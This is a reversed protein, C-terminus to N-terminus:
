RKRARKGKAADKRKGLTPLAVGIVDDVTTALTFAIEDRLDKPVADLDRANDKPIVITRIGARHAAMVKEKIGGVPLVRGRLSIEGTMSVDRRAQLGTVASLLATAMTVGASPGDKPTAGEPVHIHLDHKEFFSPDIGFDAARRRTYMLAARASEQMVEGMRGTFSFGGKGPVAVAEVLLVDGGFATAAM